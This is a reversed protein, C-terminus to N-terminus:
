NINRKKLIEILGKIVYIDSDTLGTLDVKNIDTDNLGLLWDTSTGFIKAIKILTEPTPINDHEYYSVVSKTIMLRDALEKQTMGADKRLKKLREGFQMRSSSRQEIDQM